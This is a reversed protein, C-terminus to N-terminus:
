TLQSAPFNVNLLPQSFCEGFEVDGSISPLQGEATASRLDAGRRILPGGSCAGCVWLNGEGLVELSRGLEVLPAIGSSLRYTPLSKM